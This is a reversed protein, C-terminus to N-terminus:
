LLHGSHRICYDARSSELRGDYPPAPKVRELDRGGMELEVAACDPFEVNCPLKEVECDEVAGENVEIVVVFDPETPSRACGSSLREARNWVM